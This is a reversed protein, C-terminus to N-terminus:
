LNDTTEKDDNVFLIADALSKALNLDHTAAWSKSSVATVYEELRTADGWTGNLCVKGVVVVGMVVVVVVVGAMVVVGNERNESSKISDEDENERSVHAAVDRESRVSREVPDAQSSIFGM